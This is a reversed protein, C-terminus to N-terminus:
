SSSMCDIIYSDRDWYYLNSIGFFFFLINTLLIHTDIGGGMWGRVDGFEDCFAILKFRSLWRLGMGGGM